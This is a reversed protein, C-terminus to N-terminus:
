RSGGFMNEVYKHFLTGALVPQRRKRAEAIRKDVVEALRVRVGLVRGMYAMRQRHRMDRMVVADNFYDRGFIPNLNQM